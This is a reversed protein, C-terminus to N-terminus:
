IGRRRADDTLTRALERPDTRHRLAAILENQRTSERHVADQLGEFAAELHRLRSELGDVRRKSGGDRQRGSALLRRLRETLRTTMRAGDEVETPSRRSLCLFFGSTRDQRPAEFAAGSPLTKSPPLYM